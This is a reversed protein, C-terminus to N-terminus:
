LVWFFKGGAASWFDKSFSVTFEGGGVSQRRCHKYRVSALTTEWGWPSKKPHTAGTSLSSLRWPETVFAFVDTRPPPLKSYPAQPVGKGRGWSYIVSGGIGGARGSFFIATPTSSTFGHYIFIVKM